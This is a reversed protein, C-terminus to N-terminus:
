AVAMLEGNSLSAGVIAYEDSPTDGVRILLLLDNSARM